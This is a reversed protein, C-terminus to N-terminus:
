KRYGLPIVYLPIEANDFDMIGAVKLDDFAGIMVSSLGLTVAQLSVNQGLHGAEMFVYREARSGYRSRTRSEVGTVLLVVPAERIFRQNHCSFSLEDRKDESIFTFLANEEPLYKYIGPELGEVNGSFVYLELPYIAGASPITRFNKLTDSIGQAAWLIQSLQFLDMPKDSFSRVSRREFAAREFSTGGDFVPEPLRIMEANMSAKGCFTDTLTICLLVLALTLVLVRLIMGKM